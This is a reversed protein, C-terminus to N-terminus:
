KDQCSFNFYNGDKLWSRSESTATYLYQFCNCSKYKVHSALMNKAQQNLWFLKKGGKRIDESSIWACCKKNRCYFPPLYFVISCLHPAAQSQQSPLEQCTPLGAWPSAPLPSGAHSSLMLLSSLPWCQWRMWPSGKSKAFLSRQERLVAAASSHYRRGSSFCPVITTM